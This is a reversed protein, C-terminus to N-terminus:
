PHFHWWRRFSLSSSVGKLTARRLLELVVIVGLAAGVLKAIQM